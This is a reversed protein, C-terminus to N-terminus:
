GHIIWTHGIQVGQEIVGKQQLQTARCVLQSVTVVPRPHVFLKLIFRRARGTLSLVFVLLVHHVLCAGNDGTRRGHLGLTSCKLIKSPRIGWGTFKFPEGNQHTSAQSTAGERADPEV